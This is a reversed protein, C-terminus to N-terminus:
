KFADLFAASYAFPDSGPPASVNITIAGTFQPGLKAPDSYSAAGFNSGSAANASQNNFSGMAGAGALIGGVGLMTGLENANGLIGQGLKSKSGSFIKELINTGGKTAAATLDGILMGGAGGRAGAFTTLATSTRQLARIPGGGAGNGGKGLLSYMGQLFNNTGVMAENTTSAYSQILQQEQLNRSADSSIATITGGTLALAEKTGATRLTAKGKQKILQILGAVVTTRTNADGGFYQDLLSDLANGPMMSVAIDEPTINPNNRTLINYLQQIIQPLDTMSTGEANRTQIGIMKLMNVNKAQNINAMVQMGGTLGIGPALNSSLAAGGLIGSFGTKEGPRGANYNSLGSMLGLTNGANVASLMDGPTVSTGQAAAQNMASYQMGPINNVTSMKNGYPSNLNNSYFRMREAIQQTNVAEQTSPLFAAVNASALTLGLAAKKLLGFGGSEVNLFQTDNRAAMPYFPGGTGGNGGGNNFPGGGGWGGMTRADAASASLNQQYTRSLGVLERMQSLATGLNGTLSPDAM